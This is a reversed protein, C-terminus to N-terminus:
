TGASGLANDIAAQFVPYPEAGRGVQQGNIFITPTGGVGNAVGENHDQSVTSAKQGSDLCTNFKAADLGIEGAWKKMDDVTYDHITSQGKKNQEDFIKNHMEWFKGQESACESAEAYKEALEHGLQPIPFHKYVFRVKGTKVYNDEIQKLTQTYFIRCWPCQFDSYEVMTVPANAQGQIHAGELKITPGAVAGGTGTGGTGGAGTGGTGSGGTGTGGTGGSGTGGTGGSGGSGATKMSLVIGTLKDINANVSSSAYLVVGAVLVSAVFIAIM